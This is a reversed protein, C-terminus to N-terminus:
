DCEDASFGRSRGAGKGRKDALRNEGDAAAASVDGPDIRWVDRGVLSVQFSDAGGGWGDSKFRALCGWQGREGRRASCGWGLEGACACAQYAVRAFGRYACDGLKDGRLFEGKELISM